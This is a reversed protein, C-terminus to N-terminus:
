LLKFVHNAGKTDPDQDIVVQPQPQNVFINNLNKMETYILFNINRKTKNQIVFIYRLKLKELDKKL